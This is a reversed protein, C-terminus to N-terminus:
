TPKKAHVNEKESVGAFYYINKLHILYYYIVVQQLFLQVSSIILFNSSCLIVRIEPFIDIELILCAICLLRSLNM